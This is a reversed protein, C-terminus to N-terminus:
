VVDFVARGLLADSTEVLFQYRGEGLPLGTLKLAFAADLDSGPQVGPPRGVELVTEALIPTENVKVTQNDANVLRITIKHQKNTEEWGVLFRVAVACNVPAEHSVRSWGGGQIYLKGNIAEAWDALLVIAEV